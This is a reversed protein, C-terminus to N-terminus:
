RWFSPLHSRVFNLVQSLVTGFRRVGQEVVENRGDNRDIVLYNCQYAGFGEHLHDLVADTSFNKCSYLDMTLFPKPADHWSHFSAHSTTLGVVGTVGENGLDECYIAKADFLIQMGVLDVLERLWNEGAEVSTPCNSCYATVLIHRHNLGGDAM